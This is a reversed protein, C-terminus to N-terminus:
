ALLQSHWLMEESFPLFGPRTEVVGHQERIAQEISLVNQTAVNYRDEAQMRKSPEDKFREISKRAAIAAEGAKILVAAVDKPLPYPTAIFQIILGTRFGQGPMPIM